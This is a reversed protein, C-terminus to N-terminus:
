RCMAEIFIFIITNSSVGEGQRSEEALGGLWNVVRASKNGLSTLVARPLGAVQLPALSSKKQFLDLHAVVEEAQPSTITPSSPRLDHSSSIGQSTKGQHTGSSPLCDTGSSPVSPSSPSNGVFGVTVVQDSLQLLNPFLM